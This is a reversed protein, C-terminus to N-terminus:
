RATVSATSPQPGTWCAEGREGAQEAKASHLVLNALFVKSSYVRGLYLGPRVQRVEEHIFLGGVCAGSPGDCDGRGPISDPVVQFGEIEEAFAYDFLISERRSDILSQGCFVKAPFLLHSDEGPPPPGAAHGHDTRHAFYSKLLGTLLSGALVRTRLIGQERHFVKKKWFLDFLRNLLALEATAEVGKLGAAIEAIRLKGSHGRPFFFHVDYEGDPIPGATLRAFIQDLQEQEFKRVNLHTLKARDADSLPHLREVKAFDPKGSYNESHPLFPISPPRTLFWYALGAVAVVSALIWLVLRTKSM